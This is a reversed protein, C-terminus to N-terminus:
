LTDVHPIKPMDFFVAFASFRLLSYLGYALTKPIFSLINIHLRLVLALFLFAGCALTEFKPMKTMSTKDNLTQLVSTDLQSQGTLNSPPIFM